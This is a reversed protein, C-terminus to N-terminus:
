APRRWEKADLDIHSWKASRTEGSRAATLITFLLALRGASDAKDNQEAYYTPVSDYAMSAFNSARAQKSLLPRLGDRPSLVSM